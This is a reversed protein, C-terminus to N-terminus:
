ELQAQIINTQIFRLTNDLRHRQDLVEVALWGCYHIERLALFNARHDVQPMDFGVLNPESVHFHGLCLQARRIETDPNDGALFMAGSDLHLAFGPSAVEQVLQLGQAANTIFNCGYVEPNPEICLQCGVNAFQSALRRFTEIAIVMADSNTVIGRDRNKPAGLVVKRAGLTAAIDSIMSMHEFFQKQQGPTGFLLADPKGFLVAQLSPIEFGIDELSRRYSFMSSSTIGQWNPWVKTPAVEIGSIGHLRVQELVHFDNSTQLALISLAVRMKLTGEVVVM